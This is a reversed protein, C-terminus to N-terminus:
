VSLYGLLKFVAVGNGTAPGVGKYKAEDALEDVREWKDVYLHLGSLALTADHRFFGYIKM